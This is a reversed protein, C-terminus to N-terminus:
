KTKETTENGAPISVVLKDPLMGREGISQITQATTEKLRTGKTLLLRGDNLRLDEMLVMGAKIAKLSIAHSPDINRSKRIVKILATVVDMDYKRNSEILLKKEAAEEITVEPDDTVTFSKWVSADFHRRTYRVLKRADRPWTSTIGLYDSVALIIRSGLPIQSKKLGNPFGQGNVYEHHFLVIEGVDALKDVSDLIVSGIVPHERFLRYQADSMQKVDKGQLEDPLGLLGIDHIMGAMEIKDLEAASLPFEEAVKRSLQAVQRMQKGLAPKVSEVLATLLRISDMFSAELMRNIRELAKNQAIVQTTREKVKCELNKNLDSLKANQAATLATLRKNESVLEYHELSQAVQLLLDNDNWPKTLYRHIEGKNVAQIVAELDSYGTLLYRIAEPCIAKSKELFQAGNMEPMRQDSIIMSVPKELQHLKELGKLGSEATLIHYGEKRFLRHLARTIAKEDDVLLLTHEKQLAL